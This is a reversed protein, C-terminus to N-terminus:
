ETELGMGVTGLFDCQRGLLTLVKATNAANGGSVSTQQLARVDEDEAPYHDLHNVIDLCVLGVCLIRSSSEMRVGM